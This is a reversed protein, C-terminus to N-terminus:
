EWTPFPAGMGAKKLAAVRASQWGKVFEADDKGKNADMHAKWAAALVDQRKLMTANHAEVDATWLGKEKYYAISGPHVPFVWKLNQRSLRYGSM